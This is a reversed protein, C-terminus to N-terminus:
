FVTKQVDNWELFTECPQISFIRANTLNAVFNDKEQMRDLNSEPLCKQFDYKKEIFM